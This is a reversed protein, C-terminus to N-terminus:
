YFRRGLDHKRAAGASERHEAKDGTQHTPTPLARMMAKVAAAIERGSPEIEAAPLLFGHLGKDRLEFTYTFRVGAVAKAWDDSVGSLQNLPTTQPITFDRGSAARLAAVGHEAVRRVEDYDDPKTVTFAYPM